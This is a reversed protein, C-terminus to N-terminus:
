KATGLRAILGALLPRPKQGAAKKSVYGDDTVNVSYAQRLREIEPNERNPGAPSKSSRKVM